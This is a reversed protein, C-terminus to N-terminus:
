AHVLAAVLQDLVFRDAASVATTHLAARGDAMFLDSRDANYNALV